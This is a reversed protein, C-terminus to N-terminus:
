FNNRRTFPNFKNDSGSFNIISYNNNNTSNINNRKNRRRRKLTQEKTRMM